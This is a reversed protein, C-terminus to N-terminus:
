HPQSEPNEKMVRRIQNIRFRSPQRGQEWAQYSKLTWDALNGVEKQLREGRWAILEKAFQTQKSDQKGAPTATKFRHRMLWVSGSM